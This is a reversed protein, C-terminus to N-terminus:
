RAGQMNTFFEVQFAKAEERLANIQDATIGNMSITEFAKILDSHTSQHDFKIKARAIDSQRALEVYYNQYALSDNEYRYSMPNRVAPGPGTVQLGVYVSEDTLNIGVPSATSGSLFIEIKSRHRADYLSVLAMSIENQLEKVLEDITRSANKKTRMHDAARQRISASDTPDLIIAKTAIPPTTCYNIYPAVWKGSSGRYLFISSGSLDDMLDLMFAPDFYDTPPYESSPVHLRSTSRVMDLLHEKFISRLSLTLHFDAERDFILLVLAGFIVASLLSAGIASLKMVLSSGQDIFLLIGGIIICSLLIVWYAYKKTRQATKLETTNIEAKDNKHQKRTM